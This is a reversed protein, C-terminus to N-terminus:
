GSGQNVASRQGDGEYWTMHVSTFLAAATFGNEAVHLLLEISKDM